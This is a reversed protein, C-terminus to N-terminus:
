VADVPHFEGASVMVSPPANRDIERGGPPNGSTAASRQRAKIPFVRDDMTKRLFITVFCSRAECQMWRIFNGLWYWWQRHRM